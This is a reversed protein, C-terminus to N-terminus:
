SRAGGAVEVVQGTVFDAAPSAFFIVARVVDEAAGAHGVPVRDSLRSAPRGAREDTEDRLLGPSVVNVTIGCRAEELALSRSLAVVGAKAASYAALEPEGQTAGAGVAAFNVIRGFRRERMHPVVLRCMHFVSDLNSAQVRRWDQPDMEALTTWHLGGVVNVLVDIRGWRAVAREVLSRAEDFVSVDARIALGEGGRRTVEAAVAEAAKADRRCNVVVRGGQAGAARALAAGLGRGSGTVLFVRGALGEDTV